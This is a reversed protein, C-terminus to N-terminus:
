PSAKARGLCPAERAARREPPATGPRFGPVPRRGAPRDVARTMNTWQAILEYVALLVLCLDFM